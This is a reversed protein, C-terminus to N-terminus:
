WLSQPRTISWVLRIDEIRRDVWGVYAEAAAVLPKEIKHEYITEATFAIRGPMEKIQYPDIFDVYNDFGEAGGIAYSTIAGAIVAGEIIAIGPVAALIIDGKWILALGAAAYVTEDLDEWTFKEDDRWAKERWAWVVALSRYWQTRSGFM